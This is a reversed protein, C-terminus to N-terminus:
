TWPTEIDILRFSSGEPVNTDDNLAKWQRYEVAFLIRPIFEALREPNADLAEVANLRQEIRRWVAEYNKNFGLDAKQDQLVARALAKAHSFNEALHAQYNTMLTKSFAQAGDKDAKLWAKYNSVFSQNIDHALRIQGKTGQRSRVEAKLTELQDKFNTLEPLVEEQVASVNQVEAELVAMTQEFLEPPVEVQTTEQVRLATVLEQLSTRVDDPLLSFLPNQTVDSKQHEEM